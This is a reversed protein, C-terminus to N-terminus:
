ITIQVVAKSMEQATSISYETLDIIGIDDDGTVDAEVIKLFVEGAPVVHNVNLSAEDGAAFSRIRFQVPGM